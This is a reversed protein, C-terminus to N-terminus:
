AIETFTTNNRQKDDKKANKDKRFGVLTLHNCEQRM